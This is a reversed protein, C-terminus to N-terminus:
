FTVAYAAIYIKETTFNQFALKVLTGDCTKATVFRKVPTWSLGDDASVFVKFGELEQEIEEVQKLSPTNTGSLKGLTSSVDDTTSFKYIKWWVLFESIEPIECEGTSALLPAIDISKTVLMGPRQVSGGLYAPNNPLIVTSNPVNGGPLPDGTGRGTQVRTVFETGDGNDFTAELDLKDIDSPELLPNFVVNNFMPFQALLGAYAQSVVSNPDSSPLVFSNKDVSVTSGEPVPIVYKGNIITKSGLKPTSDVQVISNTSIECLIRM